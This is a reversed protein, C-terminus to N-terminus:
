SVTQTEPEQSLYAYFKLANRISGAVSFAIVGIRALRAMSGNYSGPSLIGCLKYLLLPIYLALYLYIRDYFQKLSPDLATSRKKSLIFLAIGVHMTVLFLFFVSGETFQLLGICTLTLVNALVFLRFIRIREMM